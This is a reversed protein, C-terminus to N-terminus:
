KDPNLSGKGKQKDASDMRIKSADAERKANLESVAQAFCTDHTDTWPPCVRLKLLAKVQDVQGSIYQGKQNKFWIWNVLTVKMLLTMWKEGKASTMDTEWPWCGSNHNLHYRFDFLIEEDLVNEKSVFDEYTRKLRAAREESTPRPIDNV